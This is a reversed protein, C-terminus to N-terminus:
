SKKRTMLLPLELDYLVENIYSVYNLSNNNREDHELLWMIIVDNPISKSLVFGAKKIFSQIDDLNLNMTIALSLLPEKKLYRGNKLYRFMRESIQAIDYLQKETGLYASIM